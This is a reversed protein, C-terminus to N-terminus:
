ALTGNIADFAKCLIIATTLTFFAWVIWHRKGGSRIRRRRKERHNLSDNASTM